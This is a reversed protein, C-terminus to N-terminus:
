VPFQYRKLLRFDAGPEDECFLAIGKICMSETIQFHKVAADRLINTHTEDCYTMTDSLTLHFRYEEETYPYGWRQMLEQQRLSLAQSNRRAMETNNLPASLEAFQRVCRMALADLSPCECNPRLSLFSGMWLVQPSPVIIPRQQSCFSSLKEELVALTYGQALRFPAKLTAHFGYRRADRTYHHLLEKSLGAIPVQALARSSASDRGLWLSGALWWQSGTEPAFYLAYRAM